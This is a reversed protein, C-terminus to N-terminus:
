SLLNKILDPRPPQSMTATSVFRPNKRHRKEIEAILKPSTKRGSDRSSNVREKVLTKHKKRAEVIAVYWTSEYSAPNYQYNPNPEYPIRTDVFLAPKIRKIPKEHQQQEQSM